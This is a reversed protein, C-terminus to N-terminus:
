LVRCNCGFLPLDVFCTICVIDMNHLPLSAAIKVSSPHTNQMALSAENIRVCKSDM